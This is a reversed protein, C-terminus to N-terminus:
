RREEWHGEVWKRGIGLFGPEWHGPIWVRRVQNRRLDQRIDQRVDRRIDQRVDRRDNWRNNDYRNNDYRQAVIEQQAVVVPTSPYTSGVTLAGGEAASASKASVFAGGLPILILAVAIKPNM